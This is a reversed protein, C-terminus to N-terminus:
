ILRNLAQVRQTRHLSKEMTVKLPHMRDKFSKLLDKAARTAAWWGSSGTEFIHKKTLEVMLPYYNDPFDTLDTIVHQCTFYVTGSLNPIYYLRLEDNYFCFAYPTGSIASGRFAYQYTRINWDMLPQKVSSSVFVVSTIRDIDKGSDLTLSYNPTGSVVSESGSDESDPLDLHHAMELFAIKEASEIRETKIDLVALLNRINKKFEATDM